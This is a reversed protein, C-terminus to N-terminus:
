QTHLDGEHFTEKTTIYINHVRYTAGHARRGLLDIVEEGTEVDGGHTDEKTYLEKGLARM